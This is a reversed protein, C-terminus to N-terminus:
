GMVVSREHCGCFCPGDFERCANAIPDLCLQPLDHIFSIAMDLSAQLRKCRLEAHALKEAQTM